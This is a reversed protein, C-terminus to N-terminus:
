AADLGGTGLRQRAARALYQAAVNLEQVHRELRRVANLSARGEPRQVDAAARTVEAAAMQYHMFAEVPDGEAQDPVARWCEFGMRSAMVNLVSPNGTVVQMRFAERLSLHHTANNINLKHQLTGANIGMLEALDAIGGSHGQATFYAAADLADMGADIDNQPVPEVYGPAVGISFTLSM